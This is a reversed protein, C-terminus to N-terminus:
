GSLIRRRRLQSIECLLNWGRRRKGKARAFLSIAPTEERGINFFVANQEDCVLLFGAGALFADIWFSASDWDDRALRLAEMRRCNVEERESVFGMQWVGGDIALLCQRKQALGCERLALQFNAM